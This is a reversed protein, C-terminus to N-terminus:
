IPKRATTPQTNDRQPLNEDPADADQEHQETTVKNDYQRRNSHNYRPTDPQIAIIYAIKPSAGWTM